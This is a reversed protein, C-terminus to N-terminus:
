TKLHYKGLVLLELMLLRCYQYLIMIIICSHICSFFLTYLRVYLMGQCANGTTLNLAVGAYLSNCILIKTIREKNAFVASTFQVLSLNGMSLRKRLTKLLSEMTQISCNRLVIHITFDAVHQLFVVFFRFCNM